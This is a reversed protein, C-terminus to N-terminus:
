HFAKLIANARSDVRKAEAKQNLHRLVGAYNELTLALQPHGPGLLREQEPIVSQLITAAGAYHGRSSELAALDVRLPLVLAPPMEDRNRDAIELARMLYPEGESYRKREAFVSFLNGLLMALQPHDGGLQQQYIPLAQKLEQEATAYEHTARHLVALNNLAKAADLSDAGDSSQFLAVARHLVPEARAKEGLNLLTVGLSNLIVARTRQDGASAPEEMITLARRLLPDAEGDRAMAHLTAAMNNLAIALEQDHPAFYRERLELVRRMLKEAGPLDGRDRHVTSLNSLTSWLRPDQDGFREAEQLAASYRAEADSLAGRQYSAFADGSAIEWKHEDAQAYVFVTSFIMGIVILPAAKM